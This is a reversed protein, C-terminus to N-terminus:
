RNALELLVDAHCPKDLECWCALNKGRLTHLSEPYKALLNVLAERFWSVGMKADSPVPAFSNRGKGGVVYPNGWKTPRGVYVTNEPMRWGKTRKRQVRHPMPASPHTM